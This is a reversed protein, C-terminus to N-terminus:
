QKTSKPSKYIGAVSVAPKGQLIKALRSMKRRQEATANSTITLALNLVKVLDDRHRNSIIIAM